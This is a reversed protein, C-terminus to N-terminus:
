KQSILPLTIACGGACAVGNSYTGLSLDTTEYMFPHTAATTQAVSIAVCSEARQLPNCHFSPDYGFRVYANTAGSLAPIQVPTPVFDMRNVGDNQQMAGLKAMLIENRIGNMQMITLVWSADPLERSNWRGDYTNPR